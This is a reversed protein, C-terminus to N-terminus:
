PAEVGACPGGTTDHVCWNYCLKDDGCYDACCKSELMAAGDDTAPGDAPIVALLTVLMALWVLKKKM